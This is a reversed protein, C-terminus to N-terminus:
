SFEAAKALEVFQPIDLETSEAGPMALLDAIKLENRALRRYADIHL